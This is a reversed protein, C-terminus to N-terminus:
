PLVPAAFLALASGSHHIQPPYLTLWESGHVPGYMWGCDFISEFQTYCKRHM